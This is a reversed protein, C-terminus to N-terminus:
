WGALASRASRSHLHGSSQRAWLGQQVHWPARLSATTQQVADVNCYACSLLHQRGGYLCSGCSGEAHCVPGEKLALLMPAHHWCTTMVRLLCSRLRPIDASGVGWSPAGM